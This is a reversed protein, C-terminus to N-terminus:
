VSQFLSEFRTGRAEAAIEDFNNVMERPSPPNSKVLHTTTPVNAVGLTEYILALTENQSEQDGLASEYGFSLHGVGELMEKIQREEYEFRYLASMVRAPEISIPPSGGEGARYHWQGQVHSKEMSIAQNLRNERYLYIVHWGGAAKRRIWGNPDAIRQVEFVHRPHVAMGYARKRSFWAMSSRGKMLRDASLRPRALIEGNCLIKPHNNLLSVLLTSGTRGSTLIILKPKPSPVVYSLAYASLNVGRRLRELAQGSIM